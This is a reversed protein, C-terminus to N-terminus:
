CSQDKEVAGLDIVIIILEYQICILNCHVEELGSLNYL